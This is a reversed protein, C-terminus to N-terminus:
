TTKFDVDQDKYEEKCDADWPFKGKPDCLIIRLVERDVENFPKLWITNGCFNEMRGEEFRKGEKILDVADTLLGMALNQNIRLAIQLDPHGFNEVLGHTHINAYESCMSSSYHVFWGMEELQRKMKEQVVRRRAELIREDM